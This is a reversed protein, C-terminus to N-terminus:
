YVAKSSKARGVVHNIKFSKKQRAALADVTQKAVMRARESRANELAKKLAEPEEVKPAIKKVHTM